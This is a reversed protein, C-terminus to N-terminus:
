PIVRPLYSRTLCTPEAGNIGFDAISARTDPALNPPQLNISVMNRGVKRVTTVSGWGHYRLFVPRKPLHPASVRFYVTVLLATLQLKCVCVLLAPDPNPSAIAARFAESSMRRDGALARAVAQEAWIQASIDHRTADLTACIQEAIEPHGAHALMRAARGLVVPGWTKHRINRAAEFARDLTGLRTLEVLLGPVEVRAERVDDFWDKLTSARNSEAARTGGQVQLVSLAEDFASVAETIQRLEM